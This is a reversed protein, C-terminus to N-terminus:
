AFHASARSNWWRSWFLFSKPIEEFPYVLLQILTFFSNSLHAIIQAFQWRSSWAPIAAKGLLRSQIIPHIWPLRIEAELPFHYDQAFNRSSFFLLPFRASVLPHPNEGILRLLARSGDLLPIILYDLGAHFHRICQLRLTTPELGVRPAM